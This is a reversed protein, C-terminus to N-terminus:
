KQTQHVLRKKIRWRQQRTNKSCRDHTKRTSRSETVDMEMKCVTCIRFKLQGIVMLYFQLWICGLLNDPTLHGVFDGRANLFLHPHCHASLRPNVIKMLAVRAPGIVDGRNWRIARLQQVESAKVLQEFWCPVSPEPAFTDEAHIEREHMGIAMSVAFETPHWHFYKRLTPRDNKQICELLHDALIMAQIEFRWTHLGVASIWPGKKRSLRCTEGIWGYENAFELISDRDLNLKRFKRFLFPEALLPLYGQAPISSSKAEISAKMVMYPAPGLHVQGSGPAPIAKEEWCYGGDPVDMQFHNVEIPHQETPRPSSDLIQQHLRM